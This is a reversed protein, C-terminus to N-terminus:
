SVAHEPGDQRAIRRTRPPPYFTHKKWMDCANGPPAYKKLKAGIPLDVIRHPSPFRSRSELLFAVSVIKGGNIILASPIEGTIEPTMYTTLVVLLLFLLIIFWTTYAKIEFDTVKGSKLIDSFALRRIFPTYCVIAVSIALDTLVMSLLKLLPSSRREEHFSMGEIKKISPQSSGITAGNFELEADRPGAYTIQLSAGDYTELLEFKVNATNRKAEQVDVSIGTLERSAKLIKQM